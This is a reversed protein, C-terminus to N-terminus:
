LFFKYIIELVQRPPMKKKADLLAHSSATLSPSALSPSLPPASPKREFSSFTSPSMMNASDGGNNDQNQELSVASNNGQETKTEKVEIVTVFHSTSKPPREPVSKRAIVCNDANDENSAISAALESICQHLAGNKDSNRKDKETGVDKDEKESNKEETSAKTPNNKNTASFKNGSNNNNNGYQSSGITSATASTVAAAYKNDTNLSLRNTQQEKNGNKSERLNM